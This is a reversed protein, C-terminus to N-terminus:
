YGKKTIERATSSNVRSVIGIIVILFTRTVKSVINSNITRVSFEKRSSISVIGKRVIILVVGVITTFRKTRRSGRNYSRRYSRLRSTTLLNLDNNQRNGTLNYSVM